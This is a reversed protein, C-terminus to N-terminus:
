NVKETQQAAQKKFIRKSFLFNDSKGPTLLPYSYAQWHLPCLISGQYLPIGCAASCGLGRATVVSGASWLGRAVVVSGVLRLEQLRHAELRHEAVFSVVAFLPGWM